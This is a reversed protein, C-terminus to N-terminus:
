KTYQFQYLIGGSLQTAKGMNRGELVQRASVIVGLHKRQYKGSVGASLAMMRNSPFPMDNRRIDDGSLCDSFELSASSVWPGNRWGSIIATEVTNPLPLKNTYYMKNDYLFADRDLTITSRWTHSGRWTIYFGNQWKYDAILRVTGTRAHLGICFPLYDPVYESLPTSAGAVAFLRLRSSTYSTEVLKYKLWVSLDQLGQQGAFQGKTSGTYVYPVSALINLKSGIGMAGMVAGSRLRMQGINENERLRTGEWYNTWNQQEIIGAICFQGSNMTLADMATQSYINSFILM